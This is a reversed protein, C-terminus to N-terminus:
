SAWGLRNQGLLLLGDSVASLEAVLGGRCVAHVLFVLSACGPCRSMLPMLLHDSTELSCVRSVPGM